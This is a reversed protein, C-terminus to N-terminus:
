NKQAADALVLPLHNKSKGRRRPRQHRAPASRQPREYGGGLFNMRRLMPVHCDELIEQVDELSRAVYISHGLKAWAKAVEIQAPSLRGKGIKLELGVVHATFPNLCLIIFDPLGAKVGRAKMMGASRKSLKGAGADVASWWVEDPELVLQLM